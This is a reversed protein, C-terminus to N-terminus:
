LPEADAIHRKINEYTVDHTSGVIMVHAGSARAAKIGNENDEVVLCEQPKLGFHNIAKTYMEPDPKPKSVDENSVMYDLFHDLASLKMMTEVSNRVSNSCVAMKYNEAKLQALAFQHNFVPRCLTNSISITFSQKLANIFEHLGQPLQRAETLMQLKTRTPLGDFTSLHAERGITYGFPELADNLADYHWDKAEILVGDMDFLIAKIM